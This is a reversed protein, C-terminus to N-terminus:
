TKNSRKFPTRFRGSAGITPTTPPPPSARFGGEPERSPGHVLYFADGDFLQMAIALLNEPRPESVGNVWQSVTMRSVGLNRALDNQSMGRAELAQAIREAISGRSQDVMPVLRLRLGVCDDNGIYYAM